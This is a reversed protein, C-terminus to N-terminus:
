APRSSWGLTLLFASEELGEVDHIISRELGLLGGQVLDVTEQPTTVRLAGTLAQLTLHQGVQHERMHAGQRLLVLVVRIDDYKVLTRGSQGQDAWSREAKLFAVEAALDFHMARGALPRNGRAVGFDQAGLPLNM